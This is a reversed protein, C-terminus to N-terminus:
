CTSHHIDYFLVLLLLLSSFPFPFSHPCLTAMVSGTSSFPQTVNLLLTRVGNNDDDDDNM